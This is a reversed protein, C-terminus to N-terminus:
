LVSISRVSILSWQDSLESLATGTGGSTQGICGSVTPGTDLLMLLLLETSDQQRLYTKGVEDLVREMHSGHGRKGLGDSVSLLCEATPDRVSRLGTIIITRWFGSPRKSRSARSYLCTGSILQLYEDLPDIQRM